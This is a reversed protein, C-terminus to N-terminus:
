PLDQRVVALLFRGVALQHLVAEGAFDEVGVFLALADLFFLVQVRLFGRDERRAGGDLLGVPADRLDGGVVALLEFGFAGLDRGQGLAGRLFQLLLFM